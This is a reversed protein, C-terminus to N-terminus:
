IDQNRVLKYRFVYLLSYIHVNIFFFFSAFKKPKRMNENGNLAHIVLSANWPGYGVCKDWNCGSNLTWTVQCSMEAIRNLGKICKSGKTKPPPVLVYNEDQMSHNYIGGWPCPAWEAGKGVPLKHLIHDGKEVFCELALIVEELSVVSGCLLVRGKHWIFLM